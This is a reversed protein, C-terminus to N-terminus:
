RPNSWVLWTVPSKDALWIVLGNLKANRAAEANGSFHFTLSLGYRNDDRPLIRGARGMPALFWADLSGGGPLGRQINEMPTMTNFGGLNIRGGFLSGLPMRVQQTFPTESFEVMEELGRKSDSSDRPADSFESSYPAAVSPTVSPMIGIPGRDHETSSAFRASFPAAAPTSIRQIHSFSQASMPSVCAAIMGCLVCPARFRRLLNGSFQLPVM